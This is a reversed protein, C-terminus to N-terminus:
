NGKITGLKKFPTIAVFDGSQIFGQSGGVYYLTEDLDIRGTSTNIAKIHRTQGAAPGALVIVENGARVEVFGGSVAMPQVENGKRVVLEGAVVTSVLPIHNPLVTIEGQETPLSVSDIDAEYVVKEPTVIKFKIMCLIGGIPVSLVALRQQNSSSEIM